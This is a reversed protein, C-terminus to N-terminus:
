KNNKSEETIKISYSKRANGIAKEKIIEIEAESYVDEKTLYNILM